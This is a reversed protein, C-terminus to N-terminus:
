RLWARSSIWQNAQNQDVRKGFGPKKYILHAAPCNLRLQKQKIQFCTLILTLITSGHPRAPHKSPVQLPNCCNAAHPPTAAYRVRLGATKLDALLFSSSRTPSAIIIFCAGRIKPQDKSSVRCKPESQQRQISMCVVDFVIFLTDAVDGM